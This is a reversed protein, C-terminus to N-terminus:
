STVEAAVPKKVEAAVPKKVKTTVIAKAKGGEIEIDTIEDDLEIAGAERLTTTIDIMHKKKAEEIRSPIADLCRQYTARDSEITALDHELRSAVLREINSLNRM